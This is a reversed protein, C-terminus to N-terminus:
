AARQVGVRLLSPDHCLWCSTTSWDAAGDTKEDRWDNKVSDRTLHWVNSPRSNSEGVFIVQSTESEVYTPKTESCSLAGSFELERVHEGATQAAASLPVHLLCLESLAYASAFQPRRLHFSQCLPM